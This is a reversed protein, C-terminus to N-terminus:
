QTLSPEPVVDNIPDGAIFKRFPRTSPPANRDSSPVDNGSGEVRPTDSPLGIM